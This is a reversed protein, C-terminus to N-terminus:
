GGAHPQPYKADDVCFRLDDEGVTEPDRLADRDCVYENGARDKVWVFQTRGEPEYYDKM